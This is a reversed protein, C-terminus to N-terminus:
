PQNNKLAVSKCTESFFSNLCAIVCCVDIKVQLAMGYSKKSGMPHSPDLPVECALNNRAASGYGFTGVALVMWVWSPCPNSFTPAYLCVLAYGALSLALGLLTLVNSFLWLPM